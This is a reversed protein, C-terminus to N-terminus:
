LNTGIETYNCTKVYKSVVFIKANRRKYTNSGHQLSRFGGNTRMDTQNRNKITTKYADVKIQSQLDDILLRNENLHEATVSNLVYAYLELYM